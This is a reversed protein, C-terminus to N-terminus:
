SGQGQRHGAPQRQKPPQFEAVCQTWRCHCLPIAAMPHRSTLFAVVGCHIIKRKPKVGISISLHEGSMDTNRPADLVLRLNRPQVQAIVGPCQACDVSKAQTGTQYASISSSFTETRLRRGLSRHGCQFRRLQARADADRISPLGIPLGTVALMAKVSPRRCVKRPQDRPSAKTCNEYNLCRETRQLRHRLFRGNHTKLM